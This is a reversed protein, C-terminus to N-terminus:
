LGDYAAYADELDISDYCTDALLHERMAGYFENSVLFVWDKM